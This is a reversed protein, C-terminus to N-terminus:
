LKAAGAFLDDGTAGNPLVPDARFFYENSFFRRRLDDPMSVFIDDEGMQTRHTGLAEVKREYYQSVDIVYNHDIHELKALEENGGPAEFSKLGRKTLERALAEFESMPLALYYLADPKFAKGTASFKAPDGAAHYAATAHKHAAIHDPHGYGGSPDWTVIVRPRVERILKVLMHTVADPHARAFARPDENEPTGAMGSDRFGLFRVDAVGLIACADRLEQERFSGLTEPTADTGSAIEGVEGRTACVMTVPLGREAYLAMTGGVGFTEDDPHAFIAMLGGDAM